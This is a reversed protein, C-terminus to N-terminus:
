PNVPQRPAGSDRLAEPLFEWTVFRSPDPEGSLLGLDALQELNERVRNWNLAGIREGDEPLGEVLRLRRMEALSWELKGAPHTPNIEAIRQLVPTADGALFEEWGQLSAAVFARLEKPHSRAFARTTYLVRYPRYGADALLLTRVPVGHARAAFPESTVLCQQIFTPDALFSGLGFNQPVVAFEIGYKKKLFALWVAGANAMLTRGALDPFDHVPSAEHVLIGQPDRQMEAAVIVLPMRGTDIRVIVDDSRGMAIDVERTATRLQPHAGPGGSLIRVDLGAAAYIGALQAQYHGGHEAQPFWDCQFRIVFRKSPGGSGSSAQAAGIGAVSLALGLVAFRM